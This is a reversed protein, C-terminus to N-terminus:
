KLSDQFAFDKIDIITVPTGFQTKIVRPDPHYNM